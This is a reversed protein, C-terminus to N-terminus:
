PENLRALLLTALTDAAADLTTAPPVRAAVEFVGVATNADIVAARLVLSDTDEREVRGYLAVGAATRRALELAAIIPTARARWVNAVEAQPVMVFRGLSGLRDTLGRALGVRWPLQAGASDPIDFPAVAIRRPDGAAAAGYRFFLVAGIVAM